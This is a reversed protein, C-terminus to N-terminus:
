NKKCIIYFGKQKNGNWSKTYEKKVDLISFGTDILLKEITVYKFHKFILNECEFVGYEQYKIYGAIYRKLNRISHYIFFDSIFLLGQPKIVRSMERLIDNNDLASPFCTILASLVCADFMNSAFPVMFCNGILFEANSLRKKALSIAYPSNDIGIIGGSYGKNRLYVSVRGNGCGVDLLRSEQNLCKIFSAPPM